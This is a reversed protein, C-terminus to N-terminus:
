VVSKRDGPKVRTALDNLLDSTLQNIDEMQKELENFKATLEKDKSKGLDNSTLLMNISTFHEMNSLNNEEIKKAQNLIESIAKPNEM